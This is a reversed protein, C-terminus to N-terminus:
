EFGSSPMLRLGAVFFAINKKIEPENEKETMQRIMSEEVRARKATLEAQGTKHTFPMSTSQLVRKNISEM